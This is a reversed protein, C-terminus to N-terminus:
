TASLACPEVVRRDIEVELSLTSLGVPPRLESRLEPPARPCLPFRRSDKHFPGEDSIEFRSKNGYFNLRFLRFQEMFM